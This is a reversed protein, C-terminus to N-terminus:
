EILPILSLILRPKSMPGLDRHAMGCVKYINKEAEEASYGEAGLGCWAWQGKEVIPSLLPHRQDYNSEKATCHCKKLAEQLNEAIVTCLAELFVVPPRDFTTGYSRVIFLAFTKM